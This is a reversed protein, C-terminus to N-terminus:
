ASSKGRLRPEEKGTSPLGAWPRPVCLSEFLAIAYRDTMGAIFDIIQREIPEGPFRSSSLYLDPAGSVAQYIETLVKEAKKFEAKSVPNLYVREFMFDRLRELASLSEAGMGVWELDAELTTRIVDKVMRDIRESSTRGLVAAIDGPIDREAILGARQADDIDHTVYAVIDSLRVLDAELTLAREARKKRVPSGKRGKSHKIIGDRVEYSLNLGRGDNELRDVVRLSQDYHNFGGPVMRGLVEEGAHGFPTHGLDHALAIAETLSENLRLARALTRAIQSVELTHTLRTRYHDGAPALFVQTKHKLRRFAKSHLIRDRDRQFCPRIDCPAEDRDRGRSDRSKMARPHLTRIELDELMERIGLAPKV